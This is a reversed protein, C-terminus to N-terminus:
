IHKNINRFEVIVNNSCRLCIKSSIQWDDEETQTKTLDVWIIREMQQYLTFISHYLQGQAVWLSKPFVSTYTCANKTQASFPLPPKEFSCGCPNMPYCVAPTGAGAQIGHFLSFDRGKVPILDRDDLWYGTV